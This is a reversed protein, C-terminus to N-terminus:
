VQASVCGEPWLGPKHGNEANNGPLDEAINIKLSLPQGRCRGHVSQVKRPFRARSAKGDGSGHSRTESTNSEAEDKHDAEETLSYTDTGLRRPAHYPRAWLPVVTHISQSFDELMSTPGKTRHTPELILKKKKVSPGSSSGLVEQISIVHGVASSSGGQEPDANSSDGQHTGKRARPSSGCCGPGPRHGM